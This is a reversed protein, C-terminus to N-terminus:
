GEQTAELSAVAVTEDLGFVQDLLDSNWHREDWLGHALHEEDDLELHQWVVWPAQGAAARRVTDAVGREIGGPLGDPQHLVATWDEPRMAAPTASIPAAQRAFESRLVSPQQLASARVFQLYVLGGPDLSNFSPSIDVSSEVAKLRAAPQASQATTAAGPTLTVKFTRVASEIGDSTSIQVYFDSTYAAARAITLVNNQISLSVAGGGVATLSAPQANILLQPNAHYAPTLTDVLTSKVLSGGWRYLAGNPLLYYWVKDPTILYKEGAGRANEFYSGSYQTLHLQGNLQYARQAVPDYAYAQATYSLRDGDPDSAQLTLQLTTQGRSLTQDAISALAPATNQGTLNLRYSGTATQYGAVQLFYTGSTPATWQIRSARSGNSDDNYGLVTAGNRDYLTLVTDNLTGLQTSFVYRRGAVAQFKFWDVDRSIEINGSVTTNMAVLAASGANNGYDDAAVLTVTAAAAASWRSNGDLARVFYPMQGPALGATSVTVSARGGVVSTSQGVFQDSADWQANGNSDRYFYAGTVSASPGAIGAAALTITSGIQVSSPTASLSGVSPGQIVGGMRQLTNAANLRGGTVVKGSLAAVRDAGNLIANRVETVTANPAVSWALAAVGAVHPTAMSTGSYTAYGGPVTSYISVGPAALQVTTAGYDSFSALQDNRDSAAVSIVNGTNYNAPYHPVTDNNQGDNGAAAVFLIGANNAARIANEMASTYGGGGWSANIVRVNVGRQTRMLTTYNIARVADSLYGSGQSNLFKLPMIQASWSVGSVGIGNNGVAAITGSVHTGHGNDDMPNGTNAAFNYGHVDDVFGDGDDDRGNGVIEATNTWINGALDPHTYDTGTDIVAVVVRNSGSGGTSINWAGSANIKTMGWLQSLQPDNAAVDIHRVADQEFSAVHSNSSLWQEVAALSNGSSRVLVQGELGLGRVAQFEIGGGALLSTTQTVSSIGALTHTDFQVIWDYVNATNSNAAVASSAAASSNTSETTWDAVGAHGINQSSSVEQFWAPAVLAALGSASLFQRVELSELALKRRCRAGQKRSSGAAADPRNALKSLRRSLRAGYVFWVSGLDSERM